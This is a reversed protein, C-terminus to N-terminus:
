AERFEPMVASRPLAQLEPHRLNRKAFNRCSLTLCGANTTMGAEPTLGLAPVWPRVREPPTDAARPAPYKAERFEPMVTSRPLAQLEPHRLNRKAFNRCSLRRSRRSAAPPSS